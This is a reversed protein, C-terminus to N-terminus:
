RQDGELYVFRKSVKMQILTIVLIIVFLVWAMASAYGMHLYEFAQQFLYIAYFLAADNSYTSNGSGFFATYAESFTQFAAISHVIFIFFISGSIMPVTIKLTQQWWNAGDVRASDYLETPVNRLAALLIIVSSGVSWLSILILGPKVWDPDTTWAPGAIGFWGLVTNILGSQGNFLLLLLIGVAVPPTMKPLFFATRFFGASRGAQNLLLAFALSVVVYVPVQILTFYLTNWLSLAIKPDALLERYNDLGIFNPANIVDYDTLSLYASYIVPWATFILFGLIWPSIFLLAARIDQKQSRSYRGRRLRAPRPGTSTSSATM